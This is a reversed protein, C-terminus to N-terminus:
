EIKFVIILIIFEIENIGTAIYRQNEFCQPKKLSPAYIFVIKEHTEISYNNM